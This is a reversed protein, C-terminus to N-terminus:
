EQLASLLPLVYRQLHTITELKAGYTQLRDNSEATSAARSSLKLKIEHM